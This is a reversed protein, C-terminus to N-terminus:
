KNSPRDTTQQFFDAGLWLASLGFLEAAFDVLMIGYGLTWSPEILSKRWRM